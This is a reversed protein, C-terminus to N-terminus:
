LQAVAWAAVNQPVACQLLHANLATADSGTVSMWGRVRQMFADTTTGNVQAWQSVAAPVAPANVSAQPPATTPASPVGDAQGYGSSSGQQYQQIAAQCRGLVATFQAVLPPNLNGLAQGALNELDAFMRSLGSLDRVSASRTGAARAAPKAGQENTYPAILTAARQLEAALQQRLTPPLEVADTVIDQALGVTRRWVMDYNNTPNQLFTQNVWAGVGNYINSLGNGLVDAEQPQGSLAPIPAYQATRRHGDAPRYWHMAESASSFANSHKDEGCGRQEPVDVGLLGLQRTSEQAIKHLLLWFESQRNNTIVYKSPIKGLRRLLDQLDDRSADCESGGYPKEFKHLLPANPYNPNM